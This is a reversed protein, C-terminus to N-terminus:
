RVVPDRGLPDPVRMLVQRGVLHEIAGISPDDDRGAIVRLILPKHAKSPSSSIALRRLEQGVGVPDRVPVFHRSAQGSAV